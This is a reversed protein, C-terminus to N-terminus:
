FLERFLRSLKKYDIKGVKTTPIEKIFLIKQPQKSKSLNTQCFDRVQQKTLGTDNKVIAAAVEKGKLQNNLSIIATQDIKPYNTLIEKIHNLNVKVGGQNIVDDARGFLHLYNDEDIRGLDNATAQPQYSTALYPSKVWVLNDKTWATVEPFIKGVTDPKKIMDEALAYSVHGLESAGYYQCIQAKPFYHQLQKVTSIDLKAGTSVVSKIHQIPEKLRKILIRYHAPVMFLASINHKAIDTLWRNPFNSESFVITGGEYILHIASNLNGTYVLPGVLLLRDSNDLNFLESQHPFASVWSKHNRWIIKPEGTSGSSLAGLFLYDDKVTPLKDAKQQPLRFQQDIIIKPDIRQIINQYNKAPLETDILVSTLGAKAAGLLYLLEKIPNALKIIIKDQLQTLTTLKSAITTVQQNLEQYSVKKQGNILCAKTPNQQAHQKITEHILM